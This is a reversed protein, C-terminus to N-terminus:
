GRRLAARQGLWYGLLVSCITILGTSADVITYIRHTAPSSFADPWIWTPLLVPVFGSALFAYFRLVPHSYTNGTKPPALIYRSGVYPLVLAAAYCAALAIATNM